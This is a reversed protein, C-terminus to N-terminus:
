DLPIWGAGSKLNGWLVSRKGERVEVIEPCDEKSIFGISVYEYGAGTYVTVNHFLLEARCPFKLQKQNSQVKEKVDEKERWM